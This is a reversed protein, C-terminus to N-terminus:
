GFGGKKMLSFFFGGGDLTYKEYIISHDKQNIGDGPDSRDVLSITPRDHDHRYGSRHHGPHFLFVSAFLLSDYLNEVIRCGGFFSSM